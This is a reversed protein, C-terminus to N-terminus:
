FTLVAQLAVQHRGNVNGGSAEGRNYELKVTLNADPRFGIGADIRTHHRDWSRESGTVHDFVTRNWRAALWWRPAIKYRTEIFGAILEADGIRPVDFRTTMLELWIQLRRREFALDFATTVQHVDDIGTGAPLSDRASKRLYPGRSFSLGTTWEPAPHWAMRATITPDTPFGDTVLDWTEPRSSLASNKVEVVVDVDGRGAALSLGSTYSPGWVVPLWTRKQEALNRRNVLVDVNMPVANDTITTMDGYAVPASILPNDISQHRSVWGGFATLFKGIRVQLRAAELLEAQLYYEDFRAEGDAHRGPDFGRDMQLLVHGSLRPGWGADVMLAIRPQVFAGDADFLLGQPPTDALYGTVEALVSLQAWPDGTPTAVVMPVALRERLGAQGQLPLLVVGPLFTVLLFAIVLRHVPRRPRHSDACPIVNM